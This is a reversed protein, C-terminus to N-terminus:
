QVELADITRVSSSKRFPMGKKMQCVRENDNIELGIIIADAVTNCFARRLKQYIM